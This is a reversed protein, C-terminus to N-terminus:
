QSYVASIVPVLGARLNQAAVYHGARAAERYLRSALQTDQPTGRGLAYMFGLNNKADLNGQEAALRFWHVALSDDRQVGIGESYLYGLDVQAPAHGGEALERWIRFAVTYQGAHFAALGLEYRQDMAQRDKFIMGSEAASVGGHVSILVLMLALGSCSHLVRIM